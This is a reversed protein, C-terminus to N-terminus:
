QSSEEEEEDCSDNGAQARGAVTAGGDKLDDKKLESTERCRANKREVTSEYNKSVHLPGHIVHQPPVHIVHESPMRPAQGAHCGPCWDAAGAARDSPGIFGEPMELSLSAGSPKVLVPLEIHKISSANGREIRTNSAAAHHYRGGGASGNLRTVGLEDFIASRRDTIFYFPLRLLHHAL